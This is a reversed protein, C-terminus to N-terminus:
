ELKIGAARVVAAYRQAESKCFATFHEVSDGVPELQNAELRARLEPEALVKVTAANLQQVLPGPTGAPAWMGYWTSMVVDPYGSEALTPVQPLAKSRQMSTVGIARLKGARVLNISSPMSDFMYDVQGGVLDTLAPASGKYPVHTVDLKAAAKFLEGALHGPTGVSSSAFTLKGPQARALAVLDKVSQVPSNAGVVLEIPTTALDTIPAFDKLPDHPVKAYLSPNVLQGSVNILLTYGDAAAKAVVDAGIMGSAGGRNEIVIPQALVEALRACVIRAVIDTPGGAPYPVLMRIQKSPYDGAFARSSMSVGSLGGAFAILLRRRFSNLAAKSATNDQM